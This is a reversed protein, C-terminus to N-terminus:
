RGEDFWPDSDGPPFRRADANIAEALAAQMEQALRQAMQESSTLPTSMVFALNTAIAKKLYGPLVGAEIPRPIYRIYVAIASTHLFGTSPMFAEGLPAGTEDDVSVLNVMDAPLAYAYDFGYEPATVSRALQVRKSISWNRESLVSEVSEGLFTNAYQSLEDGSTLSDLRGKGLRGLARNVIEVWSNGYVVEAM